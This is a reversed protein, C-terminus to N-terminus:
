VHVIGKGTCVIKTRKVEIVEGTDVTETKPIKEVYEVKKCTPPLEDPYTSFIIGDLKGSVVTYTERVQKTRTRIGISRFWETADKYTKCGHYSIEVSGSYMGLSFADGPFMEKLDSVIQKLKEIQM